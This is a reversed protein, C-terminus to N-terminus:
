ENMSLKPVRRQTHKKKDDSLLDLFDLAPTVAAAKAPAAPTAVEDRYEENVLMTTPMGLNELETRSKNVWEWVLNRLRTSDVYNRDPLLRGSIFLVEVVKDIFQCPLGKVRNEYQFELFSFVKKKRKESNKAKKFVQWVHETFIKAEEDEDKLCLPYINFVGDVKSKRSICPWTLLSEGFYPDEIESTLYYPEGTAPYRYVRPYDIDVTFDKHRVPRLGEAFLFNFGLMKYKDSIVLRDGITM